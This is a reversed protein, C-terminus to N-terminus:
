SGSGSGRGSGIRGKGSIIPSHIFWRGTDTSRGLHPNKSAKERTELSQSTSNLEGGNMSLNGSASAPGHSGSVLKPM